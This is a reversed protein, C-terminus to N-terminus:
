ICDDIKIGAVCRRVRKPDYTFHILNDRYDIQITLQHLTPVGLFGSITVDAGRGMRSMDTATMSEIHQRMGAFTLDVPSTTYTKKVAGSIGIIEADSINSLQGVARAAEPSILNNYAGTDMIFLGYTGNNVVVPLIIDHGNRFFKTWTAMTPDIYRDRLASDDDSKELSAETKAAGPIAPLPDLKVVQGPFDLTFLFDSFVDGGILGDTASEVKYGQSDFQNSDDVVQVYCNAFELNGIKVSSVKAAYTEVNGSDGVGYSKFHVEPTLHLSNAASKYVILGSAGTDIQLRKKSGNIGVDLGFIVPGGGNRMSRFPITTSGMPSVLKCTDAEPPAELNKKRQELRKRSDDSLSKDNELRNKVAELRVARPQTNLWQRTIDPDEPDLRHALALQKAATANLGMFDLLRAFDTHLQANCGATKSVDQLITQAEFVKGQRWLVEASAIRAWASGPSAALWAKVEADAEKVKDAEILARILGDHAKEGAPGDAKMAQRFAAEAAADKGEAYAIDGPTPPIPSPCGPVGSPQSAPQTPATPPATQANSSFVASGLFLLAALPKALLSVTPFNM